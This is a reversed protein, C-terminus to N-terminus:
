RAAKMGGRRRGTLLLGGLGLLAASAPEPVAAGFVSAHDLVAWAQNADVDVGQASLPLTGGGLTTEFVEFSGAFFQAGAGRDSNLNIAETWASALEDFVWIRVDSEAFGAPLNAELYTLGLVYRNGVEDFTLEVTDGFLLSFAGGAPDDTFSMNVTQSTSSSGGILAAATEKNNVGIGADKFGGGGGVESAAANRDAVTASLDWVRDVVDPAFNLFSLEGDDNVSRMELGVTLAGTYTGSLKGLSDFAVEGNLTQGSRVEASRM